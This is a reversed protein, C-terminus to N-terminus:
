YPRPGEPLYGRQVGPSDAFRSLIFFRDQPIPPTTRPGISFVRRRIEPFVSYMCGALSGPSYGAGPSKAGVTGESSQM